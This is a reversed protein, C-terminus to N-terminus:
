FSAPISGAVAPRERGSQRKISGQFAKLYLSLSRIVDLIEVTYQPTNRRSTMADVGRKMYTGYLM